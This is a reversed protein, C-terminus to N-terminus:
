RLGPSRTYNQFGTMDNTLVDGPGREKEIDYPICAGQEHPLPSTCSTLFFSTCESVRHLFWLIVAELERISTKKRLTCPEKHQARGCVVRSRPERKVLATQQLSYPFKLVRLVSFIALFTHVSKGNICRFDFVGGGKRM